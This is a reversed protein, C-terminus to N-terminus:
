ETLIKLEAKIEATREAYDGGKDGYMDTLIRLDNMEDLLEDIKAAREKRAKKREAAEKSSLERATPQREEKKSMEIAGESLTYYTGAAPPPNAALYEDAQDAPALLTLDTVDAELWQGTTIETLEYVVDSYVEEPYFYTEMRYGDVEYVNAGYGEVTVLDGHFITPEFAFDYTEDKEESM